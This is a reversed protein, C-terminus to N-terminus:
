HHPNTGRAIALHHDQHHMGAAMIGYFGLAAIRTPHGQVTLAAGDPRQVAEMRLGNAGDMIAAHAVVMRQISASVGADSSTVVFVQGGDTKHTEVEARMTVNDMDVLHQRLAGIDVLAWDTHPDADLITIIEQIAAFAAHGAEQAAQGSQMAHDGHGVHSGHGMHQAAAPTALALTLVWALRVQYGGERTM